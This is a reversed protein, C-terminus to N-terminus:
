GLFEHKCFIFSQNIEKQFDTFGCEMSVRGQYGAKKLASAFDKVYPSGKEMCPLRGPCVSFHMHGLIDITEAIVSVPEQESAMHFADGLLGIHPLKLKRVLEAGERVTHIQDTELSRLPEIMVRIGYKRGLEDCMKLFYATEERGSEKSAAHCLNRAGGSGFVVTDVGIRHLRSMALNVYEYLEKRMTGSAITYQPPIFSNCAEIHLKGELYRAQLRDMEEEKLGVIMGVGAESYAYGAQHIMDDAAILIDCANQRVDRVGEPMFSGGPICCGVKM